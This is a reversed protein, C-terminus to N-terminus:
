LSAALILHSERVGELMVLMIALWHKTSILRSTSALHDPNLDLELVSM